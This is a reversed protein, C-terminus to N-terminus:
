QPCKSLFSFGSGTCCMFLHSAMDDFLCSWRVLESSPDPSLVDECFQVVCLKRRCLLFPLSSLESVHTCSWEHFTSSPCSTGLIAPLSQFTGLLRHLLHVLQSQSVSGVNGRFRFAESVVLVSDELLIKSVVVSHSSFFVHFELFRSVFALLHCNCVCQCQGLKKRPLLLLLLPRPLRLWLRLVRPLDLSQHCSWDEMEHCSQSGHFFTIRCDKREQRLVSDPSVQHVRMNTSDLM